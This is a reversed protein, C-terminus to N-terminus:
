TEGRHSFSVASSRWWARRDEGSRGARIREAHAAVSCLGGSAVVIVVVLAFTILLRQRLNM